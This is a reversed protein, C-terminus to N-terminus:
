NYHSSFRHQRLVETIDGESVAHLLQNLTLPLGVFGAIENDDEIYVATLLTNDPGVPAPPAGPHRVFLLCTGHTQDASPPSCEAVPVWDVLAGLGTLENIGMPSSTFLTMRPTFGQRTKGDNTSGCRLCMDTDTDVTDAWWTDGWKLGRGCEDCMRTCRFLGITDRSTKLVHQACVGQRESLDERGCTRM